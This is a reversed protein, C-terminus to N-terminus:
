RAEELLKEFKQKQQDNLIQMIRWKGDSLVTRYYKSFDDLISELQETQAPSLDLEKKVREVYVAKGSETWFPARHLSKHVGLNFALAGVVTGCLFVLTLVAVGM